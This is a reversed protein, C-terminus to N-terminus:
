EDKFKIVFANAPVVVVNDKVPTIPENLAAFAILSNGAFLGVHTITGWESKAVNFHIEKNNTLEGDKVTDFVVYEAPMNNTNLLKKAYGTVSSPEQFNWNNDSSVTPEKQSLGLYISTFPNSIQGGRLLNLITTKGYETFM